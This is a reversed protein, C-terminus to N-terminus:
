KFCRLFEKLIILCVLCTILIVFYELINEFSFGSFYDRKSFIESYRDLLINAENEKDTCDNYSVFFEKVDNTWEKVIAIDSKSVLEKEYIKIPFGYFEDQSCKEDFNSLCFLKKGKDEVVGNKINCLIVETPEFSISNALMYNQKKIFKTVLYYEQIQM